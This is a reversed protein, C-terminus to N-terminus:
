VKLDGCCNPSHPHTYVVAKRRNLEALVPQFMADGLWRDGYSTMVGIGQAHLSEFAFEIEQLSADVGPLPLAAFLGFRKPYNRTLTTAYENTERVVRRTLAVDRVVVDAVPLSLVAIAIGSWDMEEISRDATWQPMPPQGLRALIQAYSKPFLHHHIDIRRPNEAAVNPRPAAALGALGGLFVRRNLSM